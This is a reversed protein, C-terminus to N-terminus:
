RDAGGRRRAEAQLAKVAAEAANKEIAPRASTDTFTARALASVQAPTLAVTLKRSPEGSPLALPKLESDSTAV